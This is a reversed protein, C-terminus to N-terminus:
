AEAWRWENNWVEIQRGVFDDQQLAHILGTDTGAILARAGSPTDVLAVARPAQGRGFLVTHAAVRAPGSYTELVEVTETAAAVAVSVDAAVFGRPGPQMAYLGFAQKTLMGSVSSVLAAGAGRARLLEVARATAHLVYNNFPGGAFSMGGTITLPREDTIGLARAYTEVAIPFCSYLELLDIDNIGLGAAELAAAGAIAAGPCAALERRASVPVMHNSETSALPFIWRDRPVGLAEAQAVSTFLLASGQDVNWTSCHLRTYPFAQMPNRPSDDRIFDATQATRSWAHPNASAIASFAAYRQALRERHEAVSWGQTARYASEILAYLGVPMEFGARTEAAHFLDEKPQLHLTPSDDQQRRPLSKGLVQGRLIRYGADAGVVLASAVEGRAIRACAEAILSQQLVGVSALVTFADPAGCHRAIAGAPNAYSWRGQPVAIYGLNALAGPAGADRAAADTAALMLDLADLAQEPDEFRQTSVGAGILVPTQPALSM